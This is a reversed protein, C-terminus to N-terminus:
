WSSVTNASKCYRRQFVSGCWLSFLAVSVLCPTFPVLASLPWSHISHCDCIIDLTCPLREYLYRWPRQSHHKRCSLVLECLLSLLLNYTEEFACPPRNHSKLGEFHLLAIFVPSKRPKGSMCPLKFYESCLARLDATGSAFHEPGRSLLWLDQLLMEIAGQCLLLNICNLLLVFHICSQSSLIQMATQWWSINIDDLLLKIHLELWNAHCGTMPSSETAMAIVPLFSSIANCAHTGPFPWRQQQAERVSQRQLSQGEAKGQGNGTGWSIGLRRSAIDVRRPGPSHRLFVWTGTQANLTCSVLSPKDQWPVFGCERAEWPFPGEATKGSSFQRYLLAVQM